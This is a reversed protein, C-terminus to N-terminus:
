SDVLAHQATHVTANLLLLAADEQKYYYYYFSSSRCCCTLIGNYNTVYEMYKLIIYRTMHMLTQYLTIYM